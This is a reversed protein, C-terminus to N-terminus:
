PTDLSNLMECGLVTKNDEHGQCFCGSRSSQAKCLWFVAFSKVWGTKEFIWMFVMLIVDKFKPCYKLLMYIKALYRQRDGGLWHPNYFVSVTDRCLPLFRELSHGPYSVLCDSPSALSSQHICLVGKNGNSEPGRQSPTTTGTHIRDIPSIFSNSM